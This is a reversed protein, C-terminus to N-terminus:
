RTPPAQSSACALPCAARGARRLGRRHPPGRTCSSRGTPRSWFWATRSLAPFYWVTLATVAVPSSRIACAPLCPPPSSPERFPQCPGCVTHLPDLTFALLLSFAWGMCGGHMGWAHFPGNSLTSNPLVALRSPPLVSLPPLPCRGGPHPPLPYAGGMCGGHMAATARIQLPILFAHPWIRIACLLM